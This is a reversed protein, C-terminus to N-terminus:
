KKPKKEEKLINLIADGFSKAMDYEFVIRAVVKSVSEDPPAWLFTFLMSKEKSIAISFGNPQVPVVTGTEIIKRRKLHKSSKKSSM